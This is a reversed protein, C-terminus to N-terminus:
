SRLRDACPCQSLSFILGQTVVDAETSSLRGLSKIKQPLRFKRLASAIAPNAQKTSVIAYEYNILPYAHAGPANVLSLREDAPTRPTLAAAAATITEPTPLLFEGSYLRCGCIILTAM